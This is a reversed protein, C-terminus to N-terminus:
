SEDRASCFATYVTVTFLAIPPSFYDITYTNGDVLVLDPLGLNMDTIQTYETDLITIRLTGIDFDGMSTEGSSSKADFFEFAVPVTLSAPVDTASTTASPTDTWDYPSGKTDASDYTEESVWQFTVRESTTGPLGMSMAFHIADRFEVANFAAQRADGTEM